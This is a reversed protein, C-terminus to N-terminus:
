LVVSEKLLEYRSLVQRVLSSKYTFVKELREHICSDLSQNTNNQDAHWTILKSSLVFNLTYNIKVYRSSILKISEQLVRDFYHNM